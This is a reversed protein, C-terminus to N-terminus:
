ILSIFYIYHLLTVYKMWVELMWDLLLSNSFVVHADMGMKFGM